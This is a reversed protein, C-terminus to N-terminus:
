EGRVFADIDTCLPRSLIQLGQDLEFEYPIIDECGYMYFNGGDWYVHNNAGIEGSKGVWRVVYVGPKTPKETTWTPEPKSISVFGAFRGCCEIDVREEDSFTQGCIPCQYNYVTKNM